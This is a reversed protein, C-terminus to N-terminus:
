GASGPPLFVVGTASRAVSRGVTAFPPILASPLVYVILIRDPALHFVLGARCTVAASM